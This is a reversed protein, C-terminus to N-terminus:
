SRLAEMNIGRYGTNGGMRPKLGIDSLSSCGEERDVSEM